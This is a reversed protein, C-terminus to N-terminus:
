PMKPKWERALRQAEGIQAPTMLLGVSRLQRAAGEHDQGAALSYWMHALVYDQTVGRGDKYMDGLDAQAAPDSQEAALRFWDAAAGYDTPVGRGRKFMIGLNRQANANGQEAALRFWAVAAIHDQPLGHGSAYMRGMQVQAGAHGQEALPLFLRLAAANNGGEYAALGDEFPGAVVPGGCTFVGILVLGSLIRRLKM